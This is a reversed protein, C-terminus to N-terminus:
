KVAKDAEIRVSAPETHVYHHERNSKNWVPSIDLGTAVAKMVAKLQAVGQHAFRDGLGFSYKGLKM